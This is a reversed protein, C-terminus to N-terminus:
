LQPLKQCVHFVSFIILWIEMSETFQFYVWWRMYEENQDFDKMM